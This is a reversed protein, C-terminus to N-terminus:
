DFKGREILLIRAIGDNDDNEHVSKTTVLLLHGLFLVIM